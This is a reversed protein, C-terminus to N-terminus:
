IELTYASSHLVCSSPATVFELFLYVRVKIITPQVTACHSIVVFVTWNIIFSVEFIESNVFQWSEGSITIAMNVHFFPCM